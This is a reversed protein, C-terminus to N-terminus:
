GGRYLTWAVLLANVITLLTIGWTLLRIQHTMSLLRANQADFDRRMLEDRFFNLGLQTDPAIRDYERVLDDESLARLQRYFHAMLVESTLKLKPQRGQGVRAQM